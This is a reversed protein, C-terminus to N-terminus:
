QCPPQPRWRLLHARRTARASRPSPSVAASRRRASPRRWWASRWSGPKSTSRRRPGTPSPTSSCSSSTASRSRAAQRSPKSAPGRAGALRWRGERAPQRPRAGRLQRLRGRAHGAGRRHRLRPVHGARLLRGRRLGPDPWVGGDRVLLRGDRPRPLRAPDGDRRHAGPGAPVHLSRLLPDRRDDHRRRRRAAAQLRRVPRHRIPHRGPTRERAARPARRHGPPLPLRPRGPPHARDRRRDGGAGPGRDRQCRPAEGRLLGQRGSPVRRCPGPPQRRADGPGRRRCPPPGRSLRRRRARPDVGAKVAFARREESLDAAWVEAGLETLVRLHKEGWRGLGILLMRM